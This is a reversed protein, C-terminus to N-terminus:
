VSIPKLAAFIVHKAAIFQNESLTKKPPSPQNAWAFTVWCGQLTGQRPPGLAVRAAGVEPYKPVSAARGPHTHDSVGGRNQRFRFVLGNLKKAQEQWLIKWTM